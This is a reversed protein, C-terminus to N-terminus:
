LIKAGKKANDSASLMQLNSIHGIVDPSINHEFGKSIPYIHDLQYGKGEQLVHGRKEYSELTYLPQERTIRWVDLYYKKREPITNQWEEYSIGLKTEVAIRARKEKYEKSNMADKFKQSKKHSESINKRWEDSFTQRKKGKLRKSQRNRLENAKDAGHMQEYTKGLRNEKCYKTLADKIKKKHADTKKTACSGCKTSKKIAIQLLYNHRYYKDVGCDPCNTKFGYQKYKHEM